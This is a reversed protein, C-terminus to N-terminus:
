AEGWAVSNFTGMLAKAIKDPQIKEIDEPVNQGFSVYSVKRGTLYCINLLIGLSGTEDLKTFILDFDAVTEYIKIISLLDEQRTTVSLVLFKESSPIYNLMSSLELINETNQHSRGATDMLIVDYCDQIREICPEMEQSNYIVQLDLGLIEAYTRLQEVAAIRYTDSTILGVKKQYDLVLVSSLKAITTTKGVGTPGMFVVIQPENGSNNTKDLEQGLLVRPEGLIEMIKNYVIKVVLNIYQEEEGVELANADELVKEAIESSVGKAVLSDYFMQIMSNEYKQLGYGQSLREAITLQNVMSAIIEETAQIKDELERITQQQNTIQIDKKPDEQTISQTIANEQYQFSPIHVGPVFLPPLSDNQLSDKLSEDFYGSNFSEKLTNPLDLGNQKAAQAAEMAIALVKDKKAENEDYAATVVVIPKKFLGGIGKGSKKKISLVIASLGLEDRVKELAEQDTKGEFKKTKM